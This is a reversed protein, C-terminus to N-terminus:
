ARCIMDTVGFQKAGCDNIRLLSTDLVYAYSLNAISHGSQGGTTLMVMISEKSDSIM